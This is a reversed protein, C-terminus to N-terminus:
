ILVGKLRKYIVHISDMIKDDIRDYYFDDYKDDEYYVISDEHIAYAIDFLVFQLYRNTIGLRRMELTYYFRRYLKYEAETMFRQLYEILLTDIYEQLLSRTEIDPMNKILKDWKKSQHSFDILNQMKKLNEIDSNVINQAEEIKM